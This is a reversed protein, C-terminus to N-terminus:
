TSCGAAPPSKRVAIALPGGLPELLGQLPSLRHGRFSDTPQSSEGDRLLQQHIRPSGYTKGSKLWVQKIRRTM